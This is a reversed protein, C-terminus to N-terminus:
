RIDDTIPENLQVKADPFINKIRKRAQKLAIDKSEASVDLTGSYDEGEPRPNIRYNIKFHFTM